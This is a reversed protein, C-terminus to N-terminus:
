KKEPLFSRALEDSDKYKAQLKRLQVKLKNVIEVYAPDTYVNTLEHPDKKLNYLEWCDIDYYFHILKYRKTRIGYHRKVQHVAPYDYYHYYMADRWDAPTKGQLIPKLSQGQMDTPIDVGAVDLFTEAFDLNLVIDENVSGAKIQEPWRVLLPMRLSEEYMFRKDYWGHDGLYFGQDATYVVITNEALGKEDLYNLLRGVNEDVAAISGLYDHMYRQYKWRVIDNDSLKGAKMQEIFAQNEPEYHTDWQRQQEPSMREYESHEYGSKFHKPFLNDGKFKMDHSWYFYDRISMENEHSAPCRKSHDVFLTEPEPITGHKYKDLHRPAPSWCRHPAKHQSCLLFPKSKDRHNELWDISFDTILDTCYGEYHKKSGDMQIFDPNYYAGQGPLIEWYDFGTPNSELHWKGIVATEYGANRLLKPHTQQTNDFVETPYNTAKSNLHSYKGTLIVARSPSCISNTCFCNKFLIGEDALRDLNPTHNIKSGYCSMAHAAHDDTMIFVINPRSNTKAGKKKHTLCGMLSLMSAAAGSVKLFERRNM